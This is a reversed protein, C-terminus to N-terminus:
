GVTHIHGIKGERQLIEIAKKVAAASKKKSPSFSDVLVQVKEIFNRDELLRRPIPTRGTKSSATEQELEVLAKEVKRLFPKSKFLGTPFTTGKAAPKAKVVKQSIQNVVANVKLNSM